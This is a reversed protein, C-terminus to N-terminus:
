FRFQVEAGYTRPFIPAVERRPGVATPSGASSRLYGEEDFANKVFAVVTYRNESGNWIMRFDAVENSPAILLPNDFISSQQDDVMTYLGGLTLSGPTFDWTYSAGFTFKTEPSLPLQNGKVNQAGAAPNSSDVFCCEDKFETDLYSANFLLQLGDVPVWQTEVEVGQTTADLNLFQTTTTGGARVATLPAQLDKYDNFFVAVNMQFVGTAQWKWGLEYANAYEPDAYIDAPLGGNGFWGGSKYGRSYRAYLNTSESPEWQLGVTGTVADWKDGLNQRLGGGPNAIIDAPCPAGGCVTLSTVDLALGQTQGLVAASVGNFIQTATAPNARLFGDVQAPTLNPNGALARVQAVIANEMTPATDAAGIATSPNRGVLRISDWGEKEDETYRAGITFTWEDAFTWDIQGFGAYSTTELLGDVKLINGEPNAPGGIPALLGPDNFVHIGQVQKYTQDYQYLGVIWQVAGEGNSSINIENSWWRQAETYFGEADTSIGSATFAPTAFVFPTLPGATGDFDVSLPAVGAPFPLALSAVRNSGDTDEGTDYAYDQYGGFYKLTAGGMDWTVDLHIRDHDRLIGPAVRNTRTKFVDSVGPNTDTLGLNYNYYLANNGTGTLSSVDFPSISNELANGVGYTDDWEFKSYRVRAVVHEGLDAELQGEVMWRDSTGVDEGSGLNEIYGDDRQQISGGILYRLSDSFPGRLLMEAKYDAYNGAGVRVEGDFKDTPRKSIVNLTGGISNRGYLTGQPGRLIETREIFLPPTSTDAMSTSFIGDSYLAVSPDTGIANTLRGFGRISLRDDNRYTMSPTIRAFDEISNLGLQVRTESTYASVAVPVEQISVSRKEATVIVEELVSTRPASSEQALAAAGALGLVSSIACSLLTRQNSKLM